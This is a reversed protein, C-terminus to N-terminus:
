MSELRTTKHLTFFWLFSTTLLTSGVLGGIYPWVPFTGQKLCRYGHFDGDCLCHRFSPGNSHCSSDEPCRVPKYNCTDKQGICQDSSNEVWAENTGPCQTCSKPLWVVDLDVLGKFNDALSCNVVSERLSMFRVSALQVLYPELSHVSCNELGLGIIKEQGMSSNICCAGKMKLGHCKNKVMSTKNMLSCSQTDACIDAAYSAHFFSMWTLLTECLVLILQHSIKM